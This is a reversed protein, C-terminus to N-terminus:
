QAGCPPRPRPGGNRLGGRRHFALARDLGRQMESADQGVIPRCARRAGPGARMLEPMRLRPRRSSRGGGAGRGSRRPLAGGNRRPGRRGAAGPFRGPPHRGSREGAQAAPARHFGEDAVGPTPPHRAGSDRRREVQKEEEHQQAAEDGGPGFVAGEGGRGLLIREEVGELRGRERSSRPPREGGPARARVAGRPAAGRLPAPRRLREGGGGAMTMGFACIAAGFVPNWFSRGKESPFSSSNKVSRSIPSSGSASLASGSPPGSGSGAGFRGDRLRGRGLGPRCEVGRLGRRQEEVLRREPLPDAVRGGGRPPAAVLQGRALARAAASASRRRRPVGVSM